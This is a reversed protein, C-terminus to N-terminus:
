LMASGRPSTRSRTKDAWARSRLEGGAFWKEIIQVNQVRRLSTTLINKQLNCHGHMKLERLKFEGEFGSRGDSTFYKLCESIPSYRSNDARRKKTGTSMIIRHVIESGKGQGSKIKIDDVSSAIDRKIHRREGSTLCLSTHVRIYTDKIEMM